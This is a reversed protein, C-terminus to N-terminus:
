ELGRWQAAPGASALVVEREDGGEGQAYCTGRVELSPPASIVTRLDQLRLRGM